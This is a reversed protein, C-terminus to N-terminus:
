MERELANLSTATCEFIEGDCTDLDVYVAEMGQAHAAKLIRTWNITGKGVATMVDAKGNARLRDKAHLLTYRGNRQALYDMPDRGGVIVWYVDMELKVLKPDTRDLLLDYPIVGSKKAFEYDNNHYAFRLGVNRCETAIRNMQDAMRRFDDLTSRREPPAWAIVVCDLGLARANDLCESTSNVLTDYGFHSVRAHLGNEGLLSKM